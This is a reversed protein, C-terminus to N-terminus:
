MNAAKNWMPRAIVPGEARILVACFPLFPFIDYRYVIVVAENDVLVAVLEQISPDSATFGTTSKTIPTWILYPVTVNM